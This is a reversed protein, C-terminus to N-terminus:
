TEHLALKMSNSIRSDVSEDFGDSGADLSSCDYKSQESLYLYQSGFNM